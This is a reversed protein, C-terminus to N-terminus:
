NRILVKTIKNAPDASAKLRIYNFVGTFNVPVPETESGNFTIAQVDAWAVGNEIQDDLTAQITVTGVYATPYIVVTHLADNGNIGPDAYEPSTVWYSNNEQSQLFQIEKSARPAPFADSSVKIVSSNSFHADTYTLSKAGNSDVLYINYHLFQDKVNLLDNETITVTFLGKNTIITSDTEQLIVCDREIILNKNEDFAVFKPILDEISTVPKQEANLLKFQLVNDIGKYVQIQRQYVPRYETVFGAVNAIINIRNNVLYRPTFQM